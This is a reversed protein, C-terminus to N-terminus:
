AEHLVAKHDKIGLCVVSLLTVCHPEDHIREEKSLQCYDKAFHTMDSSSFLRTQSSQDNVYYNCLLVDGDAAEKRESVPKRVLNTTDPRM